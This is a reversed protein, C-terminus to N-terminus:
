KKPVFRDAHVLGQASVLVHTQAERVGGQMGRMSENRDVNGVYEAPGRDNM